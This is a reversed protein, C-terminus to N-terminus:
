IDGLADPLEQADVSQWLSYDDAIAKEFEAMLSRESILLAVNRTRTLVRLDRDIIEQTRNVFKLESLHEERHKFNCQGYLWDNELRWLVVTYKRTNGRALLRKAKTGEAELGPISTSQCYFPHPFELPDPGDPVFPSDDVDRRRAHLGKDSEQRLREILDTIEANNKDALDLHDELDPVCVVRLFDWNHANLIEMHIQTCTKPNGAALEYMAQMRRYSVEPLLATTREKELKGLATEYPFSKASGTNINFLWSLYVAWSSSPNRYEYLSLDQRATPWDRLRMALLCRSARSTSDDSDIELSRSHDTFARKLEHNCRHIEARLALARGSGSSLEASQSLDKLARCWEALAMNLRARILYAASSCFDFDIAHEVLKHAEAYQGLQLASEAWSQYLILNKIGLSEAKSLDHIANGWSKLDHYANGRGFYYRAENPEHALARDFDTIAAEPHEIMLLADARAAIAVTDDPDKAIIRSLDAIADHVKGLSLYVEYRERLVLTNDPESTLRNNYYQLLARLVAESKSMARLSRAVSSKLDDPSLPNELLQLLADSNNKNRLTQVCLERIDTPTEPCIAVALLATWNELRGLLDIREKIGVAGQTLVAHIIAQTEAGDTRGILSALASQRVETELSEVKSIERLEDLLASKALIEVVRLRQSTTTTTKRLFELLTAGQRLEGLEELAGAEPQARSSDGLGIFSKLIPILQEIEGRKGAAKIADIRLRVQLSPDKAIEVLERTCGLLDLDHVASNFLTKEDNDHAIQVMTAALRQVEDFALQRSKIERLARLVENARRTRDTTLGALLRDCYCEKAYELAIQCLRQIIEKEFSDEVHAGTTIVDACFVLGYPESQNAIRNLIPKAPKKESWISFFFLLVQRWQDEHWKKALQVVEEPETKTSSLGTACMYERFTPHLWEAYAGRVAFVASRRGLTQILREASRQAVTRPHRLSVPLFDLMAPVVSDLSTNQPHETMTSAIRQLALDGIQSLEPGLENAVGRSLAEKWLVDVFQRYLDIRRVPLRNTSKFVTAAITLLLPLHGIPEGGLESLRSLFAGASNGFWHKAFEAQQNDDFPEIEFLNFDHIPLTSVSGPRSTIVVQTKDSFLQRIVRNLVVRDDAPVEDFGDLLLLWQSGERLPWQEFFGTPPQGIDMDKAANIASVLAEPTALACMKALSQLRVMMPISKRALGLQEPSNLATSAIYRLLTTKGTGPQGQIVVHRGKRSGELLSFAQSIAFAGSLGPAEIARLRPRIFVERLNIDEPLTLNLYSSRSFDELVQRYRQFSTEFPDAALESIAQSLGAWEPYTQHYTHNAQRFCELYPLAVEARIAWGGADTETNRTRKIIGCIAGTAENLLPSGSIGPRIQTDNFKILHHKPSNSEYMGEGECRGDISEGGKRLDSYGWSYFRNGNEFGPQLYACPHSRGEFLLIAIDPYINEGRGPCPDPAIFTVEATLLKGQFTFTAKTGKSAGQGLVHACTVICGPSFFFGTGSSGGNMSRLHVTCDRLLQRVRIIPAQM